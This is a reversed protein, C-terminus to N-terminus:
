AVAAGADCLITGHKPEKHKGHHLDCCRIGTRADDYIIMFIFMFLIFMYNRM